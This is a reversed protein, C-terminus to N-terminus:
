DVTGDESAGRDQLDVQSESGGYELIPTSPTIDLNLQDNNSQVVLKKVKDINKLTQDEVLM